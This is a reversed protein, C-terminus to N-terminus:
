RKQQRTYMCADRIAVTHQHRRYGQAEHQEMWEVNSKHYEPAPSITHWEITDPMASRPDLVLYAGAHLYMQAAVDGCDPLSLGLSQAVLPSGCREKWIAPCFPSTVNTSILNFPSSNKDLRDTSKAVPASMIRIPIDYTDIPRILSTHVCNNHIYKHPSRLQINIGPGTLIAVRIADNMWTSM